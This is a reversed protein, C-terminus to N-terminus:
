CGFLKRMASRKEFAKLNETALKGTEIYGSLIDKFKRSTKILQWLAEKGEKDRIPCAIWEEIVEQEIAKLAEQLLENQLLSFANHARAEEQALDIDHMSREM